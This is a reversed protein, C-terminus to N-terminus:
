QVDGIPVRVTFRAGREGPRDGPVIQGGHAEVLGHVIALGMGLGSTGAAVSPARYFKQFIRQREAVPVGPGDDDVHIEVMEDDVVGASVHIASNAPSYKAANELLQFVVESLARADAFLSPMTPPVQVEIRHGRLRPKVRSVADAIVDEPAIWSRDLTMAHSEVRAAGVLDEVLGNLRDTEQDVIELLEHRAEPGIVGEDRLLATTSAKISTLPTRLEHTVADVLASKLRDSRRLAEAEAQREFGAQLEVYLREAESRSAEAEYARRRVRASLEGVTLAVVLFVGLAVLNLPDAITLTGTPPIFFFNLALAGAIAATIASGSGYRAAAFLVILLLVLAATTQNALAGALMLLASAGAVGALAVFHPTV